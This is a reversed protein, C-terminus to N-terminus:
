KYVNGKHTPSRLRIAAGGLISSHTIAAGVTRKHEWISHTHTAMETLLILRKCWCSRPQTFPLCLLFGVSPQQHTHTPTHHLPIHHPTDEQKNAQASSHTATCNPFQSFSGRMCSPAGLAVQSRAPGQGTHAPPVPCALISTPVPFIRGKQKHM